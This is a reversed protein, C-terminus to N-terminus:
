EANFVRRRRSDLPKDLHYKHSSINCTAWIQENKKMQPFVVRIMKKVDDENIVYFEHSIATVPMTIDEKINNRSYYIYIYETINLIIRM